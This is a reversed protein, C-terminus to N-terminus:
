RPIRKVLNVVLALFAGAGGLICLIMCIIIFIEGITFKENDGKRYFRDPMRNCMNVEKDERCNVM